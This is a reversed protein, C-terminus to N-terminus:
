KTAGREFKRYETYVPNVVTDVFIKTKKAFEALKEAEAVSRIVYYGIGHGQCLEGFERQNSSLRGKPTKIEIYVPEPMWAILDAVGPLLGMAKYRHMRIMAGRGGGAAENPVSHVVIGRLRFMAVIASQLSSETQSYAVADSATATRKKAQRKM